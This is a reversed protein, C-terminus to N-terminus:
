RLAPSGPEAGTGVAARIGSFDVAVAVVGGASVANAYPGCQLAAQIVKDAEARAERTLLPFSSDIVPAAALAGSPGIKLVLRQATLHPRLDDPLCKAIQNLLESPAAPDGGAAEKAGRRESDDKAALRAAGDASWAVTPAASPPSLSRDEESKLLPKGSRGAETPPAASLATPPAPPPATVMANMPPAHPAATGLSADSVLIVDIGAGQSAGVM